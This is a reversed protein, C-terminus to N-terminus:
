KGSSGFGRAGRVSTPLINTEKFTVFPIPLIVLQAIKDGKKIKYSKRGLNYIFVSINGRYGPDIVGHHVQIQNKGYSSRTLILGFYEFPLGLSIGCDVEVQQQPYVTVDEVSYLDFGADGEYAKTPVRADKHNKTILINM